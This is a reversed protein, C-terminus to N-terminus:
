AQTAFEPALAPMAHKEMHEVFPREGRSVERRANAMLWVVGGEPGKLVTEWVSKLASEEARMVVTFPSGVTLLVPNRDMKGTMLLVTEVVSIREDGAPVATSKPVASIGLEEEERNTVSAEKPAAVREREGLLVAM